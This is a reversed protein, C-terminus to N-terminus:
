NYIKITSNNLSFHKNLHIETTLLLYTYNKFIYKKFEHLHTEKLAYTHNAPYSLIPFSYLKSYLISILLVHSIKFLLVIIITEKLVTCKCILTINCKFENNICMIIEANM